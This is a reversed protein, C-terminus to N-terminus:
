WITRDQESNDWRSVTIQYGIVQRAAVFQEVGEQVPGSLELEELFINQLMPLVETTRDGVLEQLAAVIHPAFKKSLYLNKVATFLHLLGLWLTNEINDQWDPKPYPVEHIYLKELTSLPPLCSTCVQELSSVQWDSERCSIEVKLSGFGSTVKVGAAHDGFAVHAGKLAKSIPTRCILQVLQPTDFVIDNFLTINLHNLQPADIRAVLDDLYESVGKFSLSALIPLLAPIPLPPRRSAQDSAPRSRPSAFQLWLGELSTLTSLTTVMAEPSIYGSHPTDLLHLDVLHTASLLLKLLGPFPVGQLWLSRLRPASGGLFSDPLVTVVEYSMLELALLEPFPEQMAAVVKELQSPSVILNIKCVRDRHELVPIINDTPHGDGRILLPL